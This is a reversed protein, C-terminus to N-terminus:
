KRTGQRHHNKRDRPSRHHLHAYGVGKGKKGTIKGIPTELQRGVQNKAGSTGQVMKATDGIFGDWYHALNGFGMCYGLVGLALLGKIVLKKGSFGLVYAMGSIVLGLLRHAPREPEGDMTTDDLITWDEPLVVDPMEAELELGDDPVSGTLNNM